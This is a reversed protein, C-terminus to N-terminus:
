HKFLAHARNNSRSAGCENPGPAITTTSTTPSSTTREWAEPDSASRENPPTMSYNSRPLRRVSRTFPTPLGSRSKGSLKLQSPNCPNPKKM